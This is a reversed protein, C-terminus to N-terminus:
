RRHRADADDVVLGAVSLTLMVLSVGLWGVSLGVHLTVALKRGAPRLRPFAPRLAALLAISLVLGLLVLDSAVSLVFQAPVLVAEAAVWWRRWAPPPSGRRWVLGGAAPHGAGTVATVGLAPGALAHDSGALLPVAAAAYAAHLLSLGALLPPRGSM